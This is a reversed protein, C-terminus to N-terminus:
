DCIDECCVRGSECTYGSVPGWCGTCSTGPVCNGGSFASCTSYPAVVCCWGAIGGSGGCGRHPSPDIPEYGPPCIEWRVATCFGGAAACASSTDVGWDAPLDTPWDDPPDESTDEEVDEESDEEPDEEADPTADEEVDPAPEPEVDPQGDPAADGTGDGPTDEEAVDSADENKSKSGCGALALGLMCVAAITGRAITRTMVQDGKM